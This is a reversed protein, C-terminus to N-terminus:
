DPREAYFCIGGLNGASFLQDIASYFQSLADVIEVGHVAIHQERSQEFMIRRAVVFDTWENSVDILELNIFGAEELCSAYDEMTPVYSCYVERELALKEDATLTRKEFFDEVYIAAGPKLAQFCTRYLKERDPIHVFTLWSVLGDFPAGTPPGDLIDGCVHRVQHSLACRETLNLAVENLDQQLELVTMSCGTRHALYRSPGGIGGGVELLSKSESIKMKDIAADVAETGLYHYQDFQTLTDVSLPSQESIGLARLENFVRDVQGYLKMTKINNRM